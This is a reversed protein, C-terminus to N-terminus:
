TIAREAIDRGAFGPRIVWPVLTWDDRTQVALVALYQDLGLRKRRPAFCDLDEPSPTGAAHSHSHWEGINILGRAEMTATQQANYELDFQFSAPGRVANPGPGSAELAELLGDCCSGFILGGTENQDVAATREVEGMMQAGATSSIRAHTRSVHETTLGCEAATRPIRWREFGRLDAPLTARSKASPTSAPAVARPRVACTGDSVAVRDGGRRGPAPKFCEPHALVIEHGEAIHDRGPVIRVEAGDYRAILPRTAVLM